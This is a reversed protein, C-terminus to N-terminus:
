PQVNRALFFPSEFSLFFRKNFSNRVGKKGKKFCKKSIFFDSIKYNPPELSRAETEEVGTTEFVRFM